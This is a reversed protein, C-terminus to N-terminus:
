GWGGTLREPAIMAFHHGKPFCQRVLGNYNETTGTERSRYPICFYSEYELLEHMAFRLGNDYTISTVKHEYLVTVHARVTEASGKDPLLHLKGTHSKREYVSFVFGSGAGQQILGAEWDELVCEASRRHM